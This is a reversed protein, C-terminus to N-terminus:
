SQLASPCVGHCCQRCKLWRVTKSVTLLAVCAVAGVAGGVIVAAAIRASVGHGVTGAVGGLGAETATSDAAVTAAPALHVGINALAAALTGDVVAAQLRKQVAAPTASNVELEVALENCARPSQGAPCAEKTIGVECNSPSEAALRAVALCVASAKRIAFQSVTIGALVHPLPTLPPAM